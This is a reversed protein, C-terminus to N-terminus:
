RKLDSTTQRTGRGSPERERLTSKHLSETRLSHAEVKRRVLKGREKNKLRCPPRGTRNQPQFFGRIILMGIHYRALNNREEEEGKVDGTRQKLDAPRHGHV